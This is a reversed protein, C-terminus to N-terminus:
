LRIRFANAFDSSKSIIHEFEAFSLAGDDDLDAEELINQILHQMDQESLRQPGTLREVVKRLDSVGLMDDGDFDFIRFAHEAKVAKPAEDSFVSMMDLFDEFTCDGDHSSSFIRCIRDGFPNVRLEPYQLIKSMPLKANKNHGVKEPALSKFKQHAYLVEKKTFYTLDQKGCLLIWRPVQFDAALATTLWISWMKTIACWEMDTVSTRLQYDQLEEETFQSKGQGM